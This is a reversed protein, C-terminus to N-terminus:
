RGSAPRCATLPADSASRSLWGSRRTRYRDRPRKSTEAGEIGYRVASSRERRRLATSPKACKERRRRADHSFPGRCSKRSPPHCPARPRFPCSERATAATSAASFTLGPYPDASSLCRLPRQNQLRRCVPTSHRFLLVVLLFVLRLLVCSFPRRLIRLRSKASSIPWRAPLSVM